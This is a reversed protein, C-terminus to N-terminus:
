TSIGIQLWVQRPCVDFLSPTFTTEELFRTPFLTVLGKTSPEGRNHIFPKHKEPYTPIDEMRKIDDNPLVSFFKDFEISNHKATEKFLKAAQKFNLNVLNDQAVGLFHSWSRLRLSRAFTKGRIVMNVETDKKGDLSRDNINVSGIISIMDDVIMTKSHTQIWSQELKGNRKEWTRAGVVHVYRDPHPVGKQQLSAKFSRLSRLQMHMSLASHSCTWDQGWLDTDQNADPLLNLLLFVHFTAGERHAQVIRRVLREGFRNQYWPDTEGEDLYSTYLYQGEIYIFEQARAIADYMSDRASRDTQPEEADWESYSRTMFTTTPYTERKIVRDENVLDDYSKESCTSSSTLAHHQGERENNWRTIFHDAAACATKGVSSAMIDHTPMLLKDPNARQVDFLTFEPRNWRGNAIDIGGIFTEQRDIVVMKEHHSWVWLTHWPSAHNIVHIQSHNQVAEKLEENGNPWYLNQFDSYWVLIYVHLDSNKQTTALLIDLLTIGEGKTTTSRELRFHPGVKWGAIFIESKASRLSVALSNFYDNGEFFWRANKPLGDESTRVQSAADADDLDRTLGYYFYWAMFAVFIVGFIVSIAKSRDPKGANLDSRKPMAMSGVSTQIGVEVSKKSKVSSAEDTQIQMDFAMGLLGCRSGQEM